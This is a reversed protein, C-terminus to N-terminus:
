GFAVYKKDMWAAPGLTIYFQSGNTHRGNNSMGVMGRSDHLIAFTEDEFCGGYISESTNGKGSLIDAILCWM